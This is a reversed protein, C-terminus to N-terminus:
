GNSLNCGQNNEFNVVYLMTSNDVAGTRTMADPYSVYLVEKVRKEENDGRSRSASMSSLSLQEQLSKLASDVPISYENVEQTEAVALDENRCGAVMVGIVVMMIAVFRKKM